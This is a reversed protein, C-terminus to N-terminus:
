NKGKEEPVLAGKLPACLVRASLVRRGQMQKSHPNELIAVVCLTEDNANIKLVKPPFHVTATYSNWMLTYGPGGGLM